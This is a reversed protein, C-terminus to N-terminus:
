PHTVYEDLFRKVAALYLQESGGHAFSVSTKPEPAARFLRNNASTRTDDSAFPGDALLLKPRTAHSLAAAIDFHEQVLLHMPLKRAKGDSTARAYAEPDPTDIIVAALEPHANALKTALVSGLGEGYPVISSAPIHRTATLYDLAAGADETMQAESAHPGDSKGYGRYDIAFINIGARHLLDLQRAVQSLSGDGGHLYLITPTSTSSNEAPIWWGTLRPTGTEAADFRIPEFKVSPTIDVLASPHLLLQWGGQRVLLCVSLYGLLAAAAITLLLAKAIWRPDVDEAEVGEAVVRTQPRPNQKRSTSSTRRPTPTAM